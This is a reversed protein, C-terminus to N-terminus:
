RLVSVQRSLLEHGQAGRVVLMYNGDALSTLDLTARGDHVRLDQRLLTRGAMDMLVADFAEAGLGDLFLLGNTPVPHMKVAGDALVTVATITINVVDSLLLCDPGHDVLVAYDGSQGAEFTQENAGPIAQGNLFWTYGLGASATLVNGDVTISPQAMPCVDVLRYVIGTNRNGVFLELASNEGICTAGSIGTTTIQENIWGGSGNPRLSFYRGLCYDTYIYRGYLRWYPDGRYVRGGIVSCWQSGSTVHVAVPAVYNSAPQCGTTNYPANGEYCRWGFNPGSNDGAPWFDVEEWANQGVDGIWVDGTLADFGFRWPNRLGSAWIEPMVGPVGVFPNDPPISFPPEGHVDIRIITGLVNANNQSNNQPDGAGGGDGFSVYLYGDPGFELDGGNHNWQPQSRTYLITESGPLTANPNNPDVSFRSVRSTGAGTGASYYVYYYGNTAHDPDFCLGLLGQENTGTNVSISLFPTPVVTGNPQVIRINGNQQVVFLRDDGCHAIDTIQGLGTAFTQLQIRVPSPSQADACASLLVGMLLPLARYLM